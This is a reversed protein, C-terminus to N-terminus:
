SAQRTQKIYKRQARTWGTLTDSLPTDLPLPLNISQRYLFNSRGKAFMFIETKVFCFSKNSQPSIYLFIACLQQDYQLFRCPKIEIWFRIAAVMVQCEDCTHVSYSQSCDYRRLIDVFDCHVRAVMADLGLLDHLTRECREGGALVDDRAGQDLASAPSRECCARLRLSALRRARASAGLACLHPVDRGTLAEAAGGGGGCAAGGCERGGGAGEEELDCASLWPNLRALPSVALGAAAMLLLLLLPPARM